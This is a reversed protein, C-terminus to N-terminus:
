VVWAMGFSTPPYEASQRFAAGACTQPEDFSHSGLYPPCRPDLEFLDVYETESVRDQLFRSLCTPGVEDISEWRALGEGTIGSIEEDVDQPSSWLEALTAYVERLVHVKDSM